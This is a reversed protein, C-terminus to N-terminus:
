SKQVYKMLDFYFEVFFTEEDIIQIASAFNAGTQRVYDDEINLFCCAVWFWM